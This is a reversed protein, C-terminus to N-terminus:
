NQAQLRPAWNEMVLWRVLVFLQHGRTSTDSDVGLFPMAYPRFIRAYQASLVVCSYHVYMRWLLNADTTLTNAVEAAYAMLETKCFYDDCDPPPQWGLM